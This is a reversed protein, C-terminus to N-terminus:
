SGRKFAVLFILFALVALAIQTSTEGLGGGAFSVGNSTFPISTSAPAREPGVPNRPADILSGAGPVIADAIQRYDGKELLKAAAVAKLPDSLAWNGAAAAKGSAIGYGAAAGYAASRVSYRALTSADTENIQRGGALDISRRTSDVADRGWGLTLNNGQDSSLYNQVSSSSSIVQGVPNILFTTGVGRSFATKVDGRALDSAIDVPARLPRLAAGAVRGADSRAISDTIQANARGLDSRAISDTANSLERNIGNSVDSVVQNVTNSVTSVVDNFANGIDDFFGM